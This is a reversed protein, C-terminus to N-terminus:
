PQEKLVTDIERHLNCRDCDCTDSLPRLCNKARILLALLKDHEAEDARIAAQLQGIHQEFLALLKDREAEAALARAKWDVLPQPHNDILGPPYPHGGASTDTHRESM